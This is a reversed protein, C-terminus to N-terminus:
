LLDAQWAFYQKESPEDSRGDKRYDAIIGDHLGNWVPDVEIKSTLVTTFYVEGTVTATEEQTQATVNFQNTVVYKVTATAKVFRGYSNQGFKNYLKAGFTNAAFVPGQLSCVLEWDNSVSNAPVTFTKNFIEDNKHQQSTGM